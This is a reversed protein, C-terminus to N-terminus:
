QIFKIIILTHKVYTNLWQCCVKDIVNENAGAKVLRNYMPIIHKPPSIYVYHLPTRGDNDRINVTKPNKNIIYDVISLRGLGVAQFIIPKM